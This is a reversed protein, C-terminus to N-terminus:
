TTANFTYGGSIVTVTVGALPADTSADFVVGGVTGLPDVPTVTVTESFTRKGDDCAFALVMMLPIFLSFLKM